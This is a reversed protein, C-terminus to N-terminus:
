KEAIIPINVNPLLRKAIFLGPDFCARKARM